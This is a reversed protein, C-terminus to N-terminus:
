IKLQGNARLSSAAGIDLYWHVNPHRSLYSAPCDASAPGELSRCVAQAKSVGTALMIIERSDLIDSIGMTIAHPQVTELEFLSPRNAEITEASLNVVRLRSDQESGPENFGIHGNTGLGLLQLDIGGSNHLLDAYRDAEAHYDTADGAILNVRDSTFDAGDFLERRMFAAFSDPHSPPLGCYEDLNFTTAQRFPVAGDRVAEILRAYVQRPTQGTALGLVANPNSKVTALVHDAVAYAAEGATEFITLMQPRDRNIQAPQTM